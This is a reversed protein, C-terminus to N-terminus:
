AECSEEKDNVTRCIIRFDDLTIQDDYSNMSWVKEINWVKLDSGFLEQLNSRSIGGTLDTDLRQFAIDIYEDTLCGFSELCSALFETYSIDGDKYVNLNKFWYLIDDDTSHADIQRMASTFDALHIEGIRTRDFQEFVQHIQITEETTLHHAIIVLAITKLLSIYPYQKISKFVKGIIETRWINASESIEKTLWKHKMAKTASLRKQPNKEILAEIFSKADNSVKRSEWNPSSRILLIYAVNNAFNKSLVHSILVHM